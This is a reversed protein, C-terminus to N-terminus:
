TKKKKQRYISMLPASPKRPWRVMHKGGSWLNWHKLSHSDSGWIFSPSEYEKRECYTM